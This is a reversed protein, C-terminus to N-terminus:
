QGQRRRLAALEERLQDTRFTDLAEEEPEGTEEDRETLDRKGQPQTKEAKTAGYLDPMRRELIKMFVTGQSFARKGRAIQIAEHTMLARIRTIAIAYARAFEPFRDVWGFMTSEAVGFFAAWVEPFHGQGSWEIIDQCFRPEYYDDSSVEAEDSHGHVFPTPLMPRTM